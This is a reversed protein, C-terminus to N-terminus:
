MSSANHWATAHSLGYTRKTEAASRARSSAIKASRLRACFCTVRARIM